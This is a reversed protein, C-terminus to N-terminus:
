YMKTGGPHISYRTNHAGTLIKEKLETVDPGCLRNQFRLTGEEDMVFGRSKRKELNQKIRQLKVDKEQHSKIEELLSPQV